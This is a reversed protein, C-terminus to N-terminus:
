PAGGSARAREVHLRREADFFFADCTVILDEEGLGGAVSALGSSVRGIAVSRPALARRDASVALVYPGDASSLVAAAPVVLAERARPALRLEGTGRAPLVAGNPAAIRFHVQSTSRDWAIPPDPERLVATDAAPASTAFSGREDPALAAIEDDYLLATVLKGDFWAPARVSGSTAVRHAFGVSAELLHAAEGGVTFAPESAGAAPAVRALAMRCIPCEGPGAATVQPHMPCVYAGKEGAARDDRRALVFAATAAGGAAFLLLM